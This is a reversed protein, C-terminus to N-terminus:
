KVAEGNQLKLTIDAANSLAARIANPNQSAYRLNKASDSRPLNVHRCTFCKPNKALNLKMCRPCEWFTKM